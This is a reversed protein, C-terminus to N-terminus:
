ILAPYTPFIGEEGSNSGVVYVGFFFVDFPMACASAGVVVGAM